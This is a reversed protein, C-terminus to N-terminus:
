CLKIKLVATRVLKIKIKLAVVQETQHRLLVFFDMGYLSIHDVKIICRKQCNCEIDRLM